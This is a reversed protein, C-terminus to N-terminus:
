MRTKYTGDDGFSSFGFTCTYSAKASVFINIEEGYSHHLQLRYVEREAKAYEHKYTTHGLVNEVSSNEQITSRGMDGMMERLCTQSGQRKREWCHM